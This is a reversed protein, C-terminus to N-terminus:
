KQYVKMLTYKHKLDELIFRDELEVVSVTALLVDCEYLGNHFLQGAFAMGDNIKLRRWSRIEYPTIKM